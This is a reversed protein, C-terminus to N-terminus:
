ASAKTQWMRCNSMKWTTLTLAFMGNTIETDMKKSTWVLTLASCWVMNMSIGNYSNSQFISGMYLSLNRVKEGMVSLALDIKKIVFSLKQVKAFMIMVLGIWESMTYHANDMVDYAVVIAVWSFVHDYMSCAHFSLKTWMKIMCMKIEMALPIFNNEFIEFISSEFVIENGKGHFSITTKM